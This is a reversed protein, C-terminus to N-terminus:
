LCRGVDFNFNNLPFFLPVMYSPFEGLGVGVTVCACMCVGPGCLNRNNHCGRTPNFLSDSASDKQPVTPDFPSSVWSLGESACDYTKVSSLVFLLLGERSVCGAFLHLLFCLWCCCVVQPFFAESATRIWSLVVGCHIYTNCTNYIYICAYIYTHVHHICWHEHMYRNLCTYMVVSAHISTHIYGYIYTHIYAHLPSDLPFRAMVWSLVYM